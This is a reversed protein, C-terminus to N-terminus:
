ACCLQREKEKTQQLRHIIFALHQSLRSYLVVWPVVDFCGMQLWSSIRRRFHMVIQHLYFSPECDSLFVGDLLRASESQQLDLSYLFQLVRSISPPRLRLECEVFTVSFPGSGVRAPDPISVVEGYTREWRRIMLVRLTIALSDSSSVSSQHGISLWDVFV